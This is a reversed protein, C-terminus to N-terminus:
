PLWGRYKAHCVIADWNEDIEWQDWQIMYVRYIPGSGRYDGNLYLVRYQVRDLGLMKCYGMGQMRYHFIDLPTKNSSRWTLKYEDVYAGDEDFSIGDPTGVIGDLMVEGVDMGFMGAYAQELAVEFFVGAQAAANLDWGAANKFRDPYLTTELDRIVQSLHVGASRAHAQRFVTEPFPQNIIDIKM